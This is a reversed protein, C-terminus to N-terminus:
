RRLMAFPCDLGPLVVEDADEAVGGGGERAVQPALDDRLSFSLQKEQSLGVQEQLDGGVGVDVPGVVVVGRRKHGDPHFGKDM